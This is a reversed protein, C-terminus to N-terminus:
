ILFIYAVLKRNKIKIIKKRILQTEIKNNVNEICRFM